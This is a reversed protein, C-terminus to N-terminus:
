GEEFFKDEERRAKIEDILRIRPYEFVMTIKFINSCVGKQQNTEMKVMQLINECDLSGQRISCKKCESDYISESTYCLERLAFQEQKEKDLVIKIHPEERLLQYAQHSNEPQIITNGM